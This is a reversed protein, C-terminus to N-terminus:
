DAVRVIATPTYEKQRTIRAIEGRKLPIPDHEEHVIPTPKKAEVYQVDDGEKWWDASDRDKIAHHHGTAEGHALVIPQSKKQKKASAPISQVIEILVDGQRYLKRQKM